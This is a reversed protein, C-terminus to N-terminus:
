LKGYVWRHNDRPQPGDLTEYNLSSKDTVPMINICVGKVADSDMQFVAAATFKVRNLVFVAEENNDLASQLIAILEQISEKTKM